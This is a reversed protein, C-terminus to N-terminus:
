EKKVVIVYHGKHYKSIDIVQLISVTVRDGTVLLGNGEKTRRGVDVTLGKVDETMQKSDVVTRRGGDAMQGRGDATWQRIEELAEKLVQKPEKTVDISKTKLALIGIGGEKLFLAANKLFIRVQHKQSIDQFILDVTPLKYYTTPLITDGSPQHDVTTKRETNHTMSYVATQRSGDGTWRGGDAMQRGDDAVQQSRVPTKKNVEVTVREAYREPTNADALIPAINNFQESMFVLERAMLPSLEVAFIARAQQALFSVSYGASAGLYLIIDTSLVSIDAGESLAAGLKSRSPDIALYTHNGRHFEKAKFPNSPQTKRIFLPNTKNVIAPPKQSRVESKM